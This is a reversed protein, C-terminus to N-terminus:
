NFLRAYEIVLPNDIDIFDCQMSRHRGNFIVMRSMATTSLFQSFVDGSVLPRTKQFWPLFLDSDPKGIGKIVDIKGNLLSVSFLAQAEVSTLYLDYGQSFSAKVFTASNVPSGVTLDFEDTIEGHQTVTFVKIQGSHEDVIVVNRSDPSVYPTGYMTKNSVVVDTIYDMQLLIENDGSSSSTVCKVLVMGGLPIFAVAKPVCQYMTFDIAKLYKKGVLDLKFLGQQGNHVTYGYRYPHHLETDPPMFIDQVLDFRNGIPQTHITHHQTKKSAERIVLLTKAGGDEEGNWCLVWVEDLHLVYYLSVPMRDTQIVQNPNLTDKVDIVLVRNQRPQTVYVFRNRVNVSSGWICPVGKECMSPAEDLEDPIFYFNGFDPKVHRQSLCKSPEHMTYGNDHFVIFSEESSAFDQIETDNPNHITITASAQSTGANNHAVCTYVGSDELYDVDSVTLSNDYTHIYYKEGQELMQDNFKWGIVPRPLGEAHCRLEVDSHDQHASSKPSVTVHPPRQVTLIHVQKVSPKNRDHCTINGVLDAGVSEIYLSGDGLVSIGPFNLLGLDMGNRRWIVDHSMTVDCKVELGNGITVLLPVVELRHELLDPIDFAQIFEDPSLEGDRAGLEDFTVIDLLTCLTSIEDMNERLQMKWLEEKEVRGNYNHDFYNFMVAALKHKEDQTQRDCNPEEFFLCHYQLVNAKFELYKEPTCFLPILSPKEGKSNSEEESDGGISDADEDDSSEKSDDDLSLSEASETREVFKKEKKEKSENTESVDHDPSDETHELSEDASEKSEQGFSDSDSDVYETSQVDSNLKVGEDKSDQSKQRDAINIDVAQKVASAAVLSLADPKAEKKWDIKKDVEEESDTVTERNEASDTEQSEEPASEVSRGQEDDQRAALVEDQVASESDVFDDSQSSDQCREMEALKIHVGNM